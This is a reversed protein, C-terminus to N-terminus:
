RPQSRDSISRHRRDASIHIHGHDDVPRSLKPEEGAKDQVKMVM